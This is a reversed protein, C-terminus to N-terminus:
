VLVWYNDLLHGKIKVGTEVICMCILDSYESYFERTSTSSVLERTGLVLRNKCHKATKWFAM